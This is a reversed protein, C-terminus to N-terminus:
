ADHQDHCAAISIYAPMTGSRVLGSLQMFSHSHSPRRAFLSYRLLVLKDHAETTYPQWSSDHTFADSPCWVSNVILYYLKLRIMGLDNGHNNNIRSYILFKIDSMLIAQGM